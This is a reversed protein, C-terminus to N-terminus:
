ELQRVTDSSSADIERGPTIVPSSPIKRWNINWWGSLFALTSLLLLVNRAAVLLIFAPVYASVRLGMTLTYMDPYIITTLLFICSWIVVWPRHFSGNYALLPILWILYQPSFVKGTVIFILILTVFVQSLNLKGRWQWFITVGYGLVFLMSCALAVTNDLDSMVNISYFSHVIAAPHGFLTALWLVLSGLSEVHIPREVFYSLPAIVANQFNLLAFIGSIVLILCWFLLMNKWSWQTAGRLTRLFEGPMTQLRASVSPSHFRGNAVQEAIFLPPLLLLPYIKLLVGFALAVYALTWRRQEAAILCLLTLGAPVLDFRSEATAWAGIVLYFACALASGRPGYRLLLWYIALAALAMWLAFTIQYYHSPAILALSFISLSFPPYEPPLVHFPKIGSGGRWFMTADYQYHLADTYKGFIQTFSGCFLLVIAVSIPLYAVIGNRAVLAQWISDVLRATSRVQSPNCSREEQKSSKQEQLMNKM